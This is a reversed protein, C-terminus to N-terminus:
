SFAAIDLIIFVLAVSLTPGIEHVRGGVLVGPSFKPIHTGYTGNKGIEAYPEGPWSGPGM